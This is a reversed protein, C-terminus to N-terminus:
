DKWCVDYMPLVDSLKRVHTYFGDSLVEFFVGESSMVIMGSGKYQKGALSPDAPYWSPYMIKFKKRM